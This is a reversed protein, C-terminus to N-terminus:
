PSQFEDLYEDTARQQIELTDLLGLKEMQDQSEDIVRDAIVVETTLLKNHYFKSGDAICRKGNKSWNKQSDYDKERFRM